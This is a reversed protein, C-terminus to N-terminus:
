KIRLLWVREAKSKSYKDPKITWIGPFLDTKFNFPIDKKDSSHDLLTYTGKKINDLDKIITEFQQKKGYVIRRGIIREGKTSKKISRNSTFLFSTWGNYLNSGESKSNNFKFYLSFDTLELDYYGLVLPLNEIKKNEELVQNLYKELIDYLQNM